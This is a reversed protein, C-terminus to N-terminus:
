SERGRRKREHYPGHPQLREGLLHSDEVEVFVHRALGRGLALTSGRVTVELPGKFPAANVVTVTTGQTFGMDLLRQCAGTGGRIFAIVGEEGPRLNSLETIPKFSDDEKRVDECQDCDELELTCPPIQSREDHSTEPQELAKCIAAAAEDSLGHELRGAEDHVKNRRLGLSNHLFRELLRHKRVVKRAIVDGKGTLMVGKYPKYVVLGKDALKQIMQTVSPPAVDLYKVLDNNKALKGKENFEYIARLYEEISESIM